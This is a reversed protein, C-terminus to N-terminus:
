QSFINKNAETVSYCFFYVFFFLYIFVTLQNHQEFGISEKLPMIEYRFLFIREREERTRLSRFRKREAFGATYISDPFLLLVSRSKERSITKRRKMQQEDLIIYRFFDNQFGALVIAIPKFMVRSRTDFLWQQTAPLILKQSVQRPSQVINITQQVRRTGM